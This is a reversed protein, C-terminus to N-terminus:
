SGSAAAVVAKEDWDDVPWTVQDKQHTDQSPDVPMPAHASGKYVRVVDGEEPTGFPSVVLYGDLDREWLDFMDDDADLRRYNITLSRDETGPSQSIRQSDLMATSANNQTGGFQIGDVPVQVLRTGDTTIEDVTPASMDDIDPVYYIRLNNEYVRPSGM